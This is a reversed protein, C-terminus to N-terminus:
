RAEIHSELIEREERGLRIGLERALREFRRAQAVASPKGPDGPASEGGTFLRIHNGEVHLIGSTAGFEHEGRADAYRLVGSVTEGLLPAHGPYITIGAGDALRVHVWRTEEVELLTEVPTLVRLRLSSPMGM